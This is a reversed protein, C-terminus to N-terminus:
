VKDGPQHVRSKASEAIECEAVNRKVAEAFSTVRVKFELNASKARAVVM